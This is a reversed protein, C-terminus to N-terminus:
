PAAGRGALPLRYVVILTLKRLGDARQHDLLVELPRERGSLRVGAFLERYENQATASGPLPGLLVSATSGAAFGVVLGPTTQLLDIRGSVLGVDLNGSVSASYTLEVMVGPGPVWWSSLKALGGESPEVDLYQHVLSLGLRGPRATFAAGASLSVYTFRRDDFRGPGLRLDATLRWRSNVRRSGGITGLFWEAEGIRHAALGASWHGSEESRLWTLEAGGGDAGDEVTDLQASAILSDSRDPPGGAAPSAPDAAVPLTAM